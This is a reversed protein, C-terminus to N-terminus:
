VCSYLGAFFTVQQKQSNNLKAAQIKRWIEARSNEAEQRLKENGSESRTLSGERSLSRATSIPKLNQGPEGDTMALGSPLRGSMMRGSPLREPTLPGGVSSVGTLGSAKQHEAQQKSSSLASLAPHSLPPNVPAKISTQRAAPGRNAAPSVPSQKPPSLDVNPTVTPRTTQVPSARTRDPTKSSAAQFPSRPTVAAGEAEATTSSSAESKGASPPRGNLGTNARQLRQRALSFPTSSSSMKEKVRDFTELQKKSEEKLQQHREEDKALSEGRAKVEAATEEQRKKMASDMGAVARGAGADTSVAGATAAAEKKKKEAREAVEAPDAFADDFIDGGDDPSQLAIDFLRNNLEAIDKVMSDLSANARKNDRILRSNEETLDQVLKMGSNLRQVEEGLKLNEDCLQSILGEQAQSAEEAKIARQEAQYVREDAVELLEEVAKESPATQDVSAAQSQNSLEVSGEGENFSSSSLTEADAHVLEPLAASSRGIPLQREKHKKLGLRRLLSGSTARVMGPGDAAMGQGQGQGSGRLETVEAILQRNQNRLQDVLKWTQPYGQAGGEKEATPQQPVPALSAQQQLQQVQEQLGAKEQSVVQLQEQLKKDAETNAAPEALKADLIRQLKRLDSQLKANEQRVDEREAKVKMMQQVEHKLRSNHEHTRTLSKNEDVLQLITAKLGQVKREDEASLDRPTTPTTPPSGSPLSSAAAAAATRATEVAEKLELELRENQETLLSILTEHEGKLELLRNEKESELRRLERSHEHRLQSEVAQLKVTLESNDSELQALRDRLQAEEQESLGQTEPEHTDLKHTLEALKANLEVNDRTLQHLHNPDSGWSHGQRLAELESLLSDLQMQLEGNHVQVQRRHSDADDVTYQLSQSKQRLGQLSHQLHVIQEDKGALEARLQGLQDIASGAAGAQQYESYYQHQAPYHQDYSEGQSSNDPSHDHGNFKGPFISQLAARPSVLNDSKFSNFRQFRNSPAQNYIRSAPHESTISGAHESTSNTTSPPVYPQGAAQQHLNHNEQLLM